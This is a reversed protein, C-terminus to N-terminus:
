SLSSGLAGGVSAGLEAGAPGLFAAGLGGLVVSGIAGGLDARDDEKERQALEAAAKEEMTIGLMEQMRAYEMEQKSQDIKFQAEAQQQKIQQEQQGIDAAIAAQSKAAQRALGTALAAAGAGGGAGRLGALVDAQQQALGEQQLKAAQLNVTMDEYPNAVSFDFSKIQQLQKNVDAELDQISRQKYPSIDSLYAM